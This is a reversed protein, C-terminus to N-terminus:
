AQRLIIWEAFSIGRLMVTEVSLGAFLNLKKCSFVLEPKKGAGPDKRLEQETVHSESGVSM